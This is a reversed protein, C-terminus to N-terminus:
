RSPAAHWSGRMVAAPRRGTMRGRQCSQRRCIDRASLQGRAGAPRTRRRRCAVPPTLRSQTVSRETGLAVSRSSQSQLLSASAGGGVGCETGHVAGALRSTLMEFCCLMRLFISAWTLFRLNSCPASSASGAVAPCAPFTVQATCEFSSFQAHTPDDIGTEGRIKCLTFTGSFGGEGGLFLYFESGANCLGNTKM